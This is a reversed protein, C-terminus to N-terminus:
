LSNRHVQQGIWSYTRELGAIMCATSSYVLLESISGGAGLVLAIRKTM